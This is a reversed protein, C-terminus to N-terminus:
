HEAQMMSQVIQREQESVNRADIATRYLGQLYSLDWSTLAEPRPTAESFLNLISPTAAIQADPNIQALTAMAVYDALSALRLSRVSPVDIVILVRDFQQTANSRLRSVDRVRVSNTTRNLTQENLQRERASLGEAAPRTSDAAGGGISEPTASTANLEHDIRGRQASEASSRGFVMGDTASVSIHWWRVARESDTFDHLADRGLSAGFEGSTSVLGSHQEALEQAFSRGNRAFFILVNAQCGPSQVRVGVADAIEGVRDNFAQAQEAPIGTTGLCLPGNWRSMTRGRPMPPTLTDVFARVREEGAAPPQVIVYEGDGSSQQAFAPAGALVTAAAISLALSKM